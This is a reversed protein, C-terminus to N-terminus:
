AIGSQKMLTDLRKRYQAIKRDARELVGEHRHKEQRSQYTLDHCDRCGFYRQGPPLYVKAVRQNCATGDVSLPCTFWWRSGGFHPHTIQLPITTVIEESGHRHFSLSFIHDGEASLSTAFDVSALEQGTISHEWSFIGRTGVKLLGDRASERVDVSLSEEVTMKKNPRETFNGSGISGMIFDKQQTTIFLPAPSM